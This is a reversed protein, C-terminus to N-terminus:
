GHMRPRDMQRKALLQSELTAEGAIGSQGPLLDSVGFRTNISAVLPFRFIPMTLGFNLYGVSDSGDSGRMLIKLQTNSTREFTL